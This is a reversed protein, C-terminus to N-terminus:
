AIEKEFRSKLGQDKQIYVTENNVKDDIIELTTKKSV